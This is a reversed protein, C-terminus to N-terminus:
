IGYKGKGSQTNENRKKVEINESFDLTSVLNKHSIGPTKSKADHQTEKTQLQITKRRGWALEVGIREHQSKRREYYGTEIHYPNEDMTNTTPLTREKRVLIVDVVLKKGNAHALTLRHDGNNQGGKKERDAVNKERTEYIRGAEKEYIGYHIRHPIYQQRLPYFTHSPFVM